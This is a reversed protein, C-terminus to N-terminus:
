QDTTVHFLLNRKRIKSIVALLEDFLKIAEEIKGEKVLKEIRLLYKARLQREEHLSNNAIFELMAEKPHVSRLSYKLRHYTGTFGDRTIITEYFTFREFLERIKELLNLNRMTIRILTQKVRRDFTASGDGDFLGLFLYLVDEESDVTSFNLTKKIQLIEQFKSFYPNNRKIRAYVKLTKGPVKYGTSEKFYFSDVFRELTTKFIDVLEKHSTSISLNIEGKHLWISVDSLCLGTIYWFTKNDM